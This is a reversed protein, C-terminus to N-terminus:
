FDKVMKIEDIFKKHVDIKNPFTSYDDYRQLAILILPLPLGVESRLNGVTLVAIHSSLSGPSRAAIRSGRKRLFASKRNIVISIRTRKLVFGGLNCM